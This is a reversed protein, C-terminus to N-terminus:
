GTLVSLAKKSSLCKFVLYAALVAATPQYPSSEGFDSIAKVIVINTGSYQVNAFLNAKGNEIGIADSDIKNAISSPNDFLCSFVIGSKVSPKYGYISLKRIIQSSWVIPKDFINTLQQSVTVTQLEDMTENICIVKSSILVDSIKTKGAIGHAVGVSIVAGLNPFLEHTISSVDNESDYPNFSPSVDCIAAPCDGYKGIYYIIEKSQQEITINASFNYVCNYDDLEQLYGLTALIEDTNVTVLWVIVTQLIKAEIDKPLSIAEKTSKSVLVKM